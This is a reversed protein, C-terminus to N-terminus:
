VGDIAGVTESEAIKREAIVEASQAQSQKRRCLAKTAQAFRALEERKIAGLLVTLPFYLLVAVATATILVPWPSDQLLWLPLAIAIGAPIALAM